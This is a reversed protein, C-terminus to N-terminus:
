KNFMKESNLYVSITQRVLKNMETSVDNRYSSLAEGVVSKMNADLIKSDNIVEELLKAKSIREQKIKFIKALKVDISVETYPEWEKTSQV